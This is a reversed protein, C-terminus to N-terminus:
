EPQRQQQQRAPLIQGVCQGFGVRFGQGQCYGTIRIVDGDELFTRSVGSHGLPVSKQGSWSLELLSGFSEETPGSITGTGCLDGPRMNCGNIAHHVLQQRLTWYMYRLNSTTLRHFTSQGAPCIDVHLSIDYGAPRHAPDRLYPLPEPIQEPQAIRFPELADMTVVWPSITTGFSKGLFPGLPVYEWAQIDRASWDNMLVVGFICGEAQELTLAEGLQNGPGVFFAMELEYDLRVSPGFVPPAQPDPRRQGCPRHLSTGSVVVSSARGHYGVPLHTWNPMLANERGRFMAGVNTAHERSAYFDTYDGIQAPMHMKVEDLALAVDRPASIDLRVKNQSNTLFDQLAKRVAQWVPRGLAMYENLRPKSFVDHAQPLGQIGDFLGHTALAAMNLVHGGIAVAVFREHEDTSSVPSCVGFPLNHISFDSEPSVPVFNCEM